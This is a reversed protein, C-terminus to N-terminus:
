GGGTGNMADSGDESPLSSSGSSSDDSSHSGGSDSAKSHSGKATPASGKSLSIKARCLRAILDEKTLTSLASM